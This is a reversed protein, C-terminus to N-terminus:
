KILSKIKNGIRTRRRSIEYEKLGLKGAIWKGSGRGIFQNPIAEGGLFEPFHHELIKQDAPDSSAYATMIADRENLSRDPTLLDDNIVRNTDYEDAGDHRMKVIKAVPIGTRDALEQNSPTRGHEESFSKRAQRYLAFQAYNDMTTGKYNKHQAVLRQVVSGGALNRPFLQDHVYTSLRAGYAPDYRDFSRYITDRVYRQAEGPYVDGQYKNVAMHMYDEFTGMLHGRAQRDGPDPLGNGAPGVGSKYINWLHHQAEHPAMGATNFHPATPAPAPASAEKAEPEPEPASFFSRLTQATKPIHM